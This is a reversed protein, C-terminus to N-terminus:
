KLKVLQICGPVDNTNPSKFVYMVISSVSGGKEIVQRVGM